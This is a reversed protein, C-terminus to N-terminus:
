WLMSVFSSFTFSNWVQPSPIRDCYLLFIDKLSTCIMGLVELFRTSLPCSSPKWKMPHLPNSLISFQLQAPNISSGILMWPVHERIISTREGVRILHLNMCSMLSPISHPRGSSVIPNISCLVIRVTAVPLIFLNSASFLASNIMSNDTGSGAPTSAPYTISFRVQVGSASIRLQWKPLQRARPRSTDVGPLTIISFLTNSDLPEAMSIAPSAFAHYSDPATLSTSIRM